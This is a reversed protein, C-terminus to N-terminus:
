IPIDAEANVRLPLIVDRFIHDAPEGYVERELHIKWGTTGGEAWKDGM